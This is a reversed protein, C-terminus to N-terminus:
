PCHTSKQYGEQQAEKETCFWKEGLDLEITTRNYEQCTPLHYVKVLDNRGINGKIQCDPNDPNEIQQCKSSWLGLEQEQAQNVAEKITDGLRSKTSDYRALGEEAMQLNVLTKGQWVLALTRKFKDQAIREVKVYKGLILKELHEKAEQGNCFILEPADLDALKINQGSSIIFTDGDTVEQVKFSDKQQNLLNGLIFNLILSLALLFPLIAKSLKSV